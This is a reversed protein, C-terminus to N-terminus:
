RWSIGALYGGIPVGAMQSVSLGATAYGMVQVINKKEVVVPISAWVQSTVFSASIGALFRFLFMLAFSNAFGCLFTSITFALCSYVMVKKRDRGDSIPGSVLAFLAYGITYASVMWGSISTDIHYLSSLTTLLPSILFTDTGIIFM